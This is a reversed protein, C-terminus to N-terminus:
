FFCKEFGSFSLGPFYATGPNVEIQKKLVGLKEGNQFYEIHKNDLDICVGIVDGYDWVKGYRNENLNWCSLRYGDYGFSYIDDGVGYQTNFVTKLQCFGIQFLGNSELLVEYCWKGKILCNNARVSIFSDRAEIKNGDNYTYIKGNCTKMDLITTSTGLKGISKQKEKLSYLNAETRGTWKQLFRFDLETKSPDYKKYLNDIYSSFSEYDKYFWSGKFYPNYKNFYM